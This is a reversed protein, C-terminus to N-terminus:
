ACVCMLWLGAKLRATCSKKVLPFNILSTMIITIIIHVIFYQFFHAHELQHHNCHHQYHFALCLLPIFWDTLTTSPENGSNGPKPSSVCGYQVVVCSTSKCNHLVLVAIKHALSVQVPNIVIAGSFFLLGYTWHETRQTVSSKSSCSIDAEVFLPLVPVYLM